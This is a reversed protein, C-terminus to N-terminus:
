SKLCQVLQVYNPQVSFTDYRPNLYPSKFFFMTQYSTWTLKLELRIVRMDCYKAPFM